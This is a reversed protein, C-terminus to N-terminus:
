GGPPAVTLTGDAFETWEFSAQEVCLDWNGAVKIGVGDFLKKFVKLDSSNHTSLNNVRMCRMLFVGVAEPNLEYLSRLFVLDSNASMTMCVKAIKGFEDRDFRGEEAMGLLGNLDAMFPALLPPTEKFLDITDPKWFTDRAAALQDSPDQIMSFVRLLKSTFKYGMITEQQQHRSTVIV